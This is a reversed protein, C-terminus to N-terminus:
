NTNTPTSGYYRKYARRFVQPSNYGVMEAIESILFGGEKIYALAKEMRLREVYKSFNESTKQKFLSSLYAETIGFVNAISSLSLQPDTYQESIFQQIQHILSSDSKRIEENNKAAIAVFIEKMLYFTHLLDNQSQLQASIKEKIKYMQQSDNCHNNFVRVLTSNMSQLLGFLQKTNDRNIIYRNRREIKDFMESLSATNGTDVIAILKTEMEIPYYYSLRDVQEAKNYWQVTYSLNKERYNMAANANFFSSPIKMINRAIDGSFSISAKVSKYLQEVIYETNREVHEMVDVYSDQNYSLLLVTREFDLNYIGEVNNFYRTLISNLYVKHASIEELNSNTNLDNLSAILVVYYQAGLNINIKMLNERIDNETRFRGILLNYFISTKLEPIQSNLAEQMDNNNKVMKSIEFEFDEYSIVSNGESLLLCINTIPKSLRAVSLFLLVGGAVLSLLILIGIYLRIGATPELVQNQPLAAVYIWDRSKDKFYTIFMKKGKINQHFYGSQDTFCNNDAMPNDTESGDKYLIPEGNKGLIYIFGSNEYPIISFLRLLYEEDLFIYVGGVIERTEAMPLSKAYLIRKQVQPGAKIELCPYIDYHHSSLLIHQYWNDFSMNKIVFNSTYYRDIFLANTVSDILINNKVSYIQINELLDNATTLAKLEQQISLMDATTTGDQVPNVTSFLRNISPSGSIYTILNDMNDFTKKITEASSKMVALNKEYTQQNIVEISWYYIGGMVIVPVVLIPLVRILFFIYVRNVKDKKIRKM